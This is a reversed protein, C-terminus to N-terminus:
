AALKKDVVLASGEEKQRQMEYFPNKISDHRFYFGESMHIASGLWKSFDTFNIRGKRSTDNDIMIKKLDGYNMDKETGFYKMFDEVTIYGDHDTDLSLFAKRVSHFCNSFKMKVKENIKELRAEILEPQKDENTELQKRVEAAQIDDEDDKDQAINYLHPFFSKKFTDFNIGHAGEMFIGSNNLYEVIQLESFQRMKNKVVYSELIEELTAHGKGGYDLSAYANEACKYMRCFEKNM